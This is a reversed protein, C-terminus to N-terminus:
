GRAVNLAIRSFDSYSKGFSMSKSMDLAARCMSEYQPDNLVRLIAEALARPEERAALIGTAGNKISDRLGDVDYAVAPTGQSNAETVVLGWGEKVSPVVLVHAKRMLRIKEGPGVPGIYQIGSSHASASIAAKVKKIYRPDGGGVVMLRAGPIQDRVREFAKVADLTRKMPRVSGLCLVTPESFKAEKAMDSVPEMGIGESIIEIRERRFGFRCLDQRTSESVTIVLEKRLAWLYLPEILYGIFSFPWRIQYFWVERCLQHVFLFRPRRSVSAAFFPLTNCEDIVVDAWETLNRLFYWLARLYVTAGGGVRVIQYGDRCDRQTSGAFRSTILIAEHGDACARKLLEHTVTEAGGSRPHGIDKWSLWVIRM